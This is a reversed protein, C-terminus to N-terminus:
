LLDLIRWFEPLQKEKDHKTRIKWDIVKTYKQKLLELPAEIVKLKWENYQFQDILYQVPDAENNTTSQISVIFSKGIDKDDNVWFIIKCNRCKEFLQEQVYRHYQGFDLEETFVITNSIDEYKIDKFEKKNIGRIIKDVNEVKSEHSM